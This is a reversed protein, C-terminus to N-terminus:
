GLRRLAKVFNDAARDYPSTAHNYKVVGGNDRAYYARQIGICRGNLEFLGSDYEQKLDLCRDWSAVRAYTSSVAPAKDLLSIEELRAELITTVKIGDIEITESNRIEYGISVAVYTELDDAVDAFSKKYEMSEPILYRFVLSKEGAHILLRQAQSGLCASEDHNILLKVDHNERLSRDLCGSKLIQIKDGHMFPKDFETAVGQMVFEDTM